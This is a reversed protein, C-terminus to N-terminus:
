RSQLADLAVAMAAFVRWDTQKYTEDAVSLLYHDRLLTKKQYKGVLESTKPDRFAFHYRFFLMIIEFIDGLIPVFGAFRRLIALTQNSENIIIKPENDDNLIEWTSNLLSKRFAKKFAGIQVGTPDEVLYHGHVDMVKEARFSFVETTKTEDSYFTVKEKFALRKQQALAILETKKGSSDVGFIKYKNAFATIKQEVILQPTM